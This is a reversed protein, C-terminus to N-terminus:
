RSRHQCDACFYGEENIAMSEYPVRADCGTCLSGNPGRVPPATQDLGPTQAELARIDVAHEDDRWGPIMSLWGGFLFHDLAVVAAFGVVDRAHEASDPPPPPDFASGRPRKGRAM